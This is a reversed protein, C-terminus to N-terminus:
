SRVQLNKLAEVRTVPMWSYHDKIVLNHPLDPDGISLLFPLRTLLGLLKGTEKEIQSVSWPATKRINFPDRYLQTHGFGYRSGSGPLGFYNGLFPNLYKM